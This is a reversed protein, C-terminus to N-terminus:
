RSVELRPQEMEEDAAYELDKDGTVEDWDYGLYSALAYLQPEWEDRLAQYVKWGAAADAREKIGIESLRELSQEYRGRWRRAEEFRTEARRSSRKELELLATFENLVHLASSELIRVEAREHLDNYEEGDVCSKIVACIELSLFLVRPLSKYVQSPHFYHLIPHEVHSELTEQLDRAALRLSAPLGPLKGAVLHNAVFGVVDAGGEAEHYFAVAAARKRELASYVTLLYTISLSILGFGSAAELFVLARMANTRPVIDGYGLTTLTIGSFYLSEVWGPSAADANVSFSRPMHPYYILAFGAVLSMIYLGILLPMLVPGVSNLRSHRQQRPLRFATARAIGWIARTLLRSLPGNRGSSHLITVHVDRAVLVLLAFGAAMCLLSKM